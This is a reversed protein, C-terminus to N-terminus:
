IISLYPKEEKGLGGESSDGKPLAAPPYSM